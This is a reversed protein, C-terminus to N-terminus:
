QICQFYRIELCIAEYKYALFLKKKVQYTQMETITIRLWAFTQFSVNSLNIYSYLFFYELDDFPTRLPLSYVKYIAFSKVKRSILYKFQRNTQKLIIIFYFFPSFDRTVLNSRM